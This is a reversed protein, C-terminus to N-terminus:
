SLTSHPQRLTRLQIGNLIICPSPVISGPLDIPKVQLLERIEQLLDFRGFFDAALTKPPVRRDDGPFEDLTDVPATILIPADKPLKYKFLLPESIRGTRQLLKSSRPADASGPLM